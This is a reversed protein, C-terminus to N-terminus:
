TSPHAATGVVRQSHRRLVLYLWGASALLAGLVVWREVRHVEAMVAHLHQSFLFAITFNFPVGYAIAIGDALLFKWFPLGVIGAGLFAVARLGIVHRALFVILAGRRRYAAEIHELRERDLLRRLWRRELVREGWHRGAAYLLLDGSLVGVICTPLALWWRMVQEHSLIGATVIPVEEPVPLGISGLLLVLLVGAYSLSAILHQAMSRALM